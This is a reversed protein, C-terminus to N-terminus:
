VLVWDGVHYDVQTAKRDYQTKYKNQAKRIAKAAIDRATALSLTLEERYDQIDAVQLPSPQLYASESPMRCDLGFLLYSPKEGTSDHPINRYAFLVGSLYKDWQCGYTAAHKRLATKLTRNFREVMGDCQPHYATTNLKHIGLKKCVDLMLHSLLNTGRDSLLAEPVGFWPIVDETLLKVLRFAKQDPVPFALPWKTFFDQFVVVHRNGSTTLPLDMIDVGIIQFPRQVPIPHLPPRNVRGSSNVIACQPCSACHNVVDTYMGPWWWHRVLSKYLKAGSFHGAMPGSHNEEIIRARWQHPVVCRKCHNNKSDIFFLIGDILAFLPAQAVVKKAQTPDAPIINKALFEILDQFETDAQQAAGIDGLQPTNANIPEASLLM